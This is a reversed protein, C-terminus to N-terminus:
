SCLTGSHLLPKNACSASAISLVLMQYQFGPFQRNIAVHVEKNTIVLLDLKSRATWSLLRANSDDEVFVLESMFGIVGRIAMLQQYVGPQVMHRHRAQRNPRVNALVHQSHQLMSQLSSSTVCLGPVNSLHSQAAQLREAHSQRLRAEQHQKESVAVLRLRVEENATDIAAM